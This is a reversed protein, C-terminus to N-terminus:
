ANALALSGAQAASVTKEAEELLIMEAAIVVDSEEKPKTEAKPVTTYIMDPNGGSDFIRQCCTCVECPGVRTQRPRSPCSSVRCVGSKWKWNKKENQENNQSQGNAEDASASGSGDSDKNTRLDADAGGACGGGVSVEQRAVIQNNATELAIIDRYGYGGSMMHQILMENDYISRVTSDDLQAIVKENHTVVAASVWLTKQKAKEIKVALERNMGFGGDPLRLDELLKLTNDGWDHQLGFVFREIEATAKQQKLSRAMEMEFGLWRTAIHEAKQHIEEQNGRFLLLQSEVSRREEVDLYPLVAEIISVTGEPLAAEPLELERHLKMISLASEKDEIAFAKGFINDPDEFMKVWAELPIDRVLVSQMFKGLVQGQEDVNLMHIRIMDDDALHENKAVVYPADTSSMKPSVLLKIYGPRLNEEVDIAEDVEVDVRALAAPHKHFKYGSEAVQRPNQDLWWFTGERYDQHTTSVAYPMAAEKVATMLNVHVAEVVGDPCNGDASMFRYLHDIETLCREDVSRFEEGYKAELEQDLLLLEAQTAVNLEAVKPAEGM